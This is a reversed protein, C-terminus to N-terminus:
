IWCAHIFYYYTIELNMDVKQHKKKKQRLTVQQKLKIYTLM